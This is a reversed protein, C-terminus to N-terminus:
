KVYEFEFNNISVIDGEKIGKKELMEFVGCQRLVKQMYGLSEYDNPDVLAIARMLRKGEVVFAGDDRRSINIIADDETEPEEVYEPEYVKIPPLNALMEVTKKMLDDIGSHTAASIEFLPVNRAKLHARLRELGSDDGSILDCKNAAVIQPRKALEPSYLFLESNIKEYDSVPDRGESGSADVLHILLRCRDIHRLFDTGLGTGENAGEILGPIDAVAFSVGNVSAIGINPVLTTFHYNAIKPRAATIVSLLTSKGVNPFGILGVDALLKLELTIRREEGPQGAKAFRPAQRTPTAFHSNGWGGRGGKAIVFEENISMDAIVLGSQTDKVVTGRPVSIVLPKGDKGSCRSGMGNEGDPAIYKKRYRFDMLTTLNDDIKLVVDGGKGGDGGDPGGAPVYKERRFSIAGNGGNGAKVSIEAYDIFL